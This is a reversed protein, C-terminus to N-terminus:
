QGKTCETQWWTRTLSGRLSVCVLLCLNSHHLWSGFAVPAALQHFLGRPLRGQSGPHLTAQRGRSKPSRAELATLSVVTTKLWRTQPPKDRHGCSISGSVSPQPTPPQCDLGLIHLIPTSPRPASPSGGPALRHSKRSTQTPFSPDCSENIGYKSLGWPPWPNM